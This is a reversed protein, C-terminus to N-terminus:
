LSGGITADPHAACAQALADLVTVADEYTGWGNEPSMARFQAPDAALADVVQRWDDGAPGAPRGIFTSWSEMGAAALMPTLNYTLNFTSGEVSGASRSPYTPEPAFAIQEGDAAELWIDASM